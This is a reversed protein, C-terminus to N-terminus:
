ICSSELNTGYDQNEDWSYIKFGNYNSLTAIYKDDEYSKAAQDIAVVNIDGKVAESHVLAYKM